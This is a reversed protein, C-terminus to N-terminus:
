RDRRLDGSFEVYTKEYWDLWAPKDYSLNQNTLAVLAGLVGPNQVPIKHVVQPDGKSFSTGGSGIGVNTSTGGGTVKVEITILREILPLIAREDGLEQLLEGALNVLSNDGSMLAKMFDHFAAEPALKKLVELARQRVAAQEQGGDQDLCMKTLIQIAGADGLRELIPIFLAKTAPSSTTRNVSNPRSYLTFGIAASAVPGNLGDLTAQARAGNRPHSLNSLAGKIEKALNAREANFKKEAELMALVEPFRYRNGVSVKGRGAMQEDIPVWRGDSENKDFGLARRAMAHEPDLEVVREYHAREHDLMQNKRAVGAMLVHSEITDSSNKLAEAYAAEGKGNQQHVKIEAQTVLVMNGPSLEVVLTDGNKKVVTGTIKRGNKLTVEDAHLSLSSGLLAVGLCAVRLTFRNVSAHNNM